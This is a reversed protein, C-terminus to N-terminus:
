RSMLRRLPPVFRPVRRQYGAYAPYKAASIEESFTSSGRFLIVLLISGAISWNMWQGSASISFLYLAIWFGQEAFYNPHRSYAWLGRDLFGKTLDPNSIDATRIAAAKETQFRWQQNDAVTEYCLMVVALVCALYDIPGIPTESFQMAVVTPLTMMLILVNQYGSIFGLNFLTWRWRPKFEPKERLVQWRYDEHGTWFKWQYAGHRSFNYTLRLGWATVLLAMLLVRPSFDAHVAVTWTYVIPLISWVKDVQSVNATLEGLVFCSLWAVLLIWLLSQLAGMEAAGLPTGFFFSVVLVILLTIVLLIATAIINM